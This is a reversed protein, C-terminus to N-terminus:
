LDSALRKIGLKDGVAIFQRPSDSDVLPIPLLVSSCKMHQMLEDIAAVAKNELLRQRIGVLPIITEAMKVEKTCVM